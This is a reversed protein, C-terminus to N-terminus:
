NVEDDCCVCQGPADQTSALEGATPEANTANLILTYNLVIAWEPTAGPGTPAVLVEDGNRHWPEKGAWVVIDDAGAILTLAGITGQAKKVKAKGTARDCATIKASFNETQPRTKAPRVLLPGTREASHGNESSM